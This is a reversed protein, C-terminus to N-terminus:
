TLVKIGPDNRCGILRTSPRNAITPVTLSLMDINDVIHDGVVVLISKKVFLNSM